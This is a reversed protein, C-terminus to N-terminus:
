KKPIAGGPGPMGPRYQDPRVRDFNIDFRPDRRLAWRKFCVGPQRMRPTYVGLDYTALEGERWLNCRTMPTSGVLIFEFSIARCDAREECLEMCFRADHGEYDQSALLLASPVAGCNARCVYDVTGPRRVTLQIGTCEAMAPAAGAGLAALAAAAACISTRLIRPTM